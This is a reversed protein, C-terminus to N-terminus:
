KLLQIHYHIMYGNNYLLHKYSIGRKITGCITVIRM